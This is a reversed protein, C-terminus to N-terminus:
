WGTPHNRDRGIGDPADIPQALEGLRVSVSVSEVYGQQLLICPPIHAVRPDCQRVWEHRSCKNGKCRRPGPRQNQNASPIQQDVPRALQRLSKRRQVKRHLQDLIVSMWMPPPKQRLRKWLFRFVCHLPDNSKNVSQWKYLKVCQGIATKSCKKKIAAACLHHIPDYSRPLHDIIALRCDYTKYGMGM